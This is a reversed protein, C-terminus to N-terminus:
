VTRYAHKRHGLTVTVVVLVTDDITYSIRYDGISVRYASRGTLRTAGPPRPDISLLAIAGRIREADATDPKRLATAAASRVEIRYTV